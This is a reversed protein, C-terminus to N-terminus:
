AGIDIAVADSENATPSRVLHESIEVDLSLGNHPVKRGAHESATVECEEWVMFDGQELMGGRKVGVRYNEAKIL